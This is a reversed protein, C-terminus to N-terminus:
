EGETTAAVPAAAQPKTELAKITVSKINGRSLQLAMTFEEIHSLHSIRIGGTIDAGFRVKEDTYLRMQKGTWGETMKGWGRMLVRRMNKCPRFAKDTENLHIDVPQEATKGKSVSKVTVTVTKGVLDCANIQDSKAITTQSIDM